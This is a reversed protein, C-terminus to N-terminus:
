RIENPMFRMMNTIGGLPLMDTTRDYMEVPERKANEIAELRANYDSNKAYQRVKLKNYCSVKLDNDTEERCDQIGKEFDVRRKYWYAATDNLKGFGKPEKADVFAPPCFDKWQPEQVGNIDYLNDALVAIPVLMLIALLINKM